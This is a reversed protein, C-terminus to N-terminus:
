FDNERLLSEQVSSLSSQVIEALTNLESYHFNPRAQALKTEDLSKAWEKLEEVPSAVKRLVLFLVASFLLIAIFAVLLIYGFQPPHNDSMPKSSKDFVVAAYRVSDGTHVKMVFLARKPQALIPIGDIQKTLENPELEAVNINDQIVQPLSQWDSAVTLEGITVAQNGKLTIEQAQSRIFNSM